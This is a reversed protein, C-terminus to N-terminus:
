AAKRRRAAVTLGGLGMVLLPLGAPLPVPAPISAEIRALAAAGIVEHVIRTPHVGDIFFLTDIDPGNFLCSNPDFTTLSAACPTEGDLLGYLTGGNDIDDAIAENVGAYDFDIINYGELRLATMNVGLAMNYAGSFDTGLGSRVPDSFAPTAGIDGLNGVLFDNFSQGTISGIARIGDAVANAAEVPGYGQFFDNGGFLVSILPNSGPTPAGPQTSGFVDAPLGFGGMLSAAFADIQAAFTTLPLNPDLGNPGDVATAGGLALSGTDRGNAEFEAAVIETWTPGNTFRGGVSPPALQVFLGDDSLSDGFTYFGTYEDTITSAQATNAFGIVLAISIAKNFM